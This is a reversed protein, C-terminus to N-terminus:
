PRSAMRNLAAQAQRTALAGPAGHALAQLLHRAEPTGTRELVEVARVLRIQEATLPGGLLRGLLDEIRRRTEITAGPGRAKELVPVALEGLKELGTVAGARVDFKDSDLDGILRELTKPDAPIAPKVRDRLFPVAQRSATALKRISRFAKGADEHLLDSWLEALQRAPLEKTAPSPDRKISAVDWVLMTGDRSGTVLRKGDPTYALAGISGDHGMFTGIEKAAAVNWIHISKGKGRFALISGDPSFALASIGAGTDGAGAAFPSNAAGKKPMNRTPQGVQCRERGSAIEWLSVTGNPNESAIVRGDPAVAMSGAGRQAPLPMKPLERGSAVDWRRLVTVSPPPDDAGRFPGRNYNAPFQAVVTRGDPAFALRPSDANAAAGVRIGRPTDANKEQLSIQRLVTGTAVDHLLIRMDGGSYSALTKGDPSFLLAGAFFRYGKLQRIEKGTATERLRITGDRVAVALTRGDPSCAVCSLGTAQQFQGIERCELLDWSRVTGDAGFSILTRGDRAAGLYVLPASHGDALRQEKGTATAWMRVTNGARAAVMKSDPSFALGPPVSIIRRRFSNVKMAAFPGPEGLRHLEKGSEASL